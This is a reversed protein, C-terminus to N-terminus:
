QRNKSCLNEFELWEKQCKNKKWNNNELCKKLAQYECASQIKTVSAAAAAPALVPQSHSSEEAPTVRAAMGNVYNPSWTRMRVPM